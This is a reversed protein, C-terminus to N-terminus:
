KKYKKKEEQSLYAKQKNVCIDRYKNIYEQEKIRLEDRTECPYNKILVIRVDIYKILEYSSMYCQEDMIWEWFCAKHKALRRSLYKENTSGIYIKDTSDSVLKYIKGNEM